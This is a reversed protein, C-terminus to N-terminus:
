LDRRNSRGLFFNRQVSWDKKIMDILADAKDNGGMDDATGTSASMPQINNSVNLCMM